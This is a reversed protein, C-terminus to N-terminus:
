APPTWTLTKSGCTCGIGSFTGVFQASFPNCTVTTGGIGTAFVCQVSGATGVIFGSPSTGSCSLRLRATGCGPITIVGTDWATGDWTAPYSGGGGSVTVSLVQPIANPCCPVTVTPPPCCREPNIVCDQEDGADLVIVRRKQVELSYSGDPNTILSVCEVVEREVGSAQVLSIIGPAIDGTLGATDIYVRSRKPGTLQQVLINTSQDFRLDRTDAEVETGDVNQTNLQAGYDSPPGPDNDVRLPKRNTIATLVGSASVGDNRGRDYVAWESWSSYGIADLVWKQWGLFEITNKNARSFYDIQWLKAVTAARQTRATDNIGAYAPMDDWAVAKANVDVGLSLPTDTPLGYPLNPVPFFVSLTTPMRVALEWEREDTWAGDDYTRSANRIDPIPTAETDPDRISVVGNPANYVLVFGAAQVVRNLATWVDVGQFVFGEPTGAPSSPFLPASGSGGYAANIKAWLDGLVGQWTWPTGANTTIPDIVGNGNRFNYSANASVNRYSWRWDVLTLEVISGQRSLSTQHATRLEIVHLFPITLRNDANDFITLSLNHRGAPLKEYDSRFMLVKAIGYGDGIPCIYSNCQGPESVDEPNVCPTNNLLYPM